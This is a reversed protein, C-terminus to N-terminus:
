SIKTESEDKLEDPSQYSPIALQMFDNIQFVHDREYEESHSPLSTIKVLEDNTLELGFSWIPSGEDDKDEILRFCKIEDFRYVTEKKGFLGYRTLLVRSEIRNIFVKAIPANYIIWIGAAVGCSGMLFALALMWPSQKAYDNLGGLAGYVFIGGVFAFFLGVFWLCGPTEEVIIQNFEEKLRM